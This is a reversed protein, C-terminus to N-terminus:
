HLSDSRPCFLASVVVRPQQVQEEVRGHDCISYELVNSSRSIPSLPPTQAVRTRKCKKNKREPMSIGLAEEERHAHVLKHLFWMHAALLGVFILPACCHGRHQRRHHDDPHPRAGDAKIKSEKDHHKKGHHNKFMFEDDNKLKDCSFISAPLAAAEDMTKCSSAVAASKCWSCGDIADCSNQASQSHCDANPIFQSRLFDAKNHHKKHGGKNHHVERVPKVDELKDCAFISAPLAKAEDITKCSSAVAASACWSCGDLADCSNQASQSHCDANPMFKSRLFDAHDHHVPKEEETEVEEELKDCAFISSPLARAEDMTKCSSAVAASACWSCGDIADCSSQASQSHCDVNGRLVNLFDEFRPEQQMPMPMPEEIDEEEELKDCSFISAPLAAAEDMTKCSSAVAASKCWSCGDIADCSDQASQSHCDANSHFFFQPPSMDFHHGGRLKRGGRMRMPPMEHPGDIHMENAAETNNHPHPRGHHIIRGAEKAYHHVILGIFALFGIRFINKKFVKQTFEPKHRYVACLSKKGICLVAVGMMWTLFTVSKIIDYLDFEDRSMMRSRRDHDEEGQPPPPPGHPHPGPRKHDMIREAIHRAGFGHWISGVVTMAGLAILIYSSIRVRKGYHAAQEKAKHIQTEKADVSAMEQAVQANNYSAMQANTIVVPM